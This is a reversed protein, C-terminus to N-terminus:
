KNVNCSTTVIVKLQGRQGIAKKDWVCLAVENPGCKGRLQSQLLVNDADIPLNVLNVWANHLTFFSINEPGPVWRLWLCVCVFSWVELNCLGRISFRGSCWHLAEWDCCLTNVSAAESSSQFDRWKGYDWDSWSGCKAQHAALKTIGVKERWSAFLWNSFSEWYEFM